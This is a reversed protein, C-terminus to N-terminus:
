LVIVERFVSLSFASFRSVAQLPFGSSLVAPGASGFPGHFKQKSCAQIAKFHRVFHPDEPFLQFASVSFVSIPAAAPFALFRRLTPPYRRFFETASSRPHAHILTSSRPYGHPFFSFASLQFCFHPV